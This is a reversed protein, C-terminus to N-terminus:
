MGIIQRNEHSKKTFAQTRGIGNTMIETYFIVTKKENRNFKMIISEIEEKEIQKLANIYSIM